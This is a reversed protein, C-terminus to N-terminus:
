NQFIFKAISTIEVVNRNWDPCVCKFKPVTYAM